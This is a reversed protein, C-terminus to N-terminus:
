VVISNCETFTKPACILESNESRYYGNDIWKISAKMRVPFDIEYGDGNKDLYKYWNESFYSHPFDELEYLRGSRSGDVKGKDGFLFKFCDSRFKINVRNKKICGSKLSDKIATIMSTCSDYLERVPPNPNEYSRHPANINTCLISKYEKSSLSCAYKSFQWMPLKVQIWGLHRKELIAKGSCLTNITQERCTFLVLAKVSAM